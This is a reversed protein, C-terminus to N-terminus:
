FQRLLRRLYDREGPPRAPDASRRRLEDLIRQSKNLEARHPVRTTGDDAHGPAPRGLPDRGGPRAGGMAMREAAAARGQRLLDLAQNQAQAAQKWDDARLAQAAQGMAEAAQDLGPMAQGLSGALKSAAEALARAVQEQGQASAAGSAAAPAQSQRHSYDLLAQQRRIVAQLEAMGEVPPATDDGREISQLLDSLDKMLAALAEHAGNRAMDRAAELMAALDEADVVRAAGDMPGGGQPTRAAMARLWREMAAQFASLLQDIRGAPAGEAVAQEIARRTEELSREAAALDGDEIRLAANWLLDQLEAPDHNEDLLAHRAVRLALFAVVDDGFQAPDASIADLAVVVDLVRVTSLTLQRRQEIVARAGSHRFEREPLTMAVWEGGSTQGVADAALPRLTVPLGAWPHASLDHWSDMQVNKPQTGALPLPVLLPPSQHDLGARRIELWLRGLGYDDSASVAVRLRGREAAQPPETFSISPLADAVTDVQWGALEFGWQRIMLRGSHTLTTEARSEGDGMPEFDLRHGGAALSLGGWGGTASAMVRSGAPVTVRQGPGLSLPAIGTHAPPTLWVDLREPALTAPLVPPSVARALRAWVEGTGGALAVVLLLLAGARWGYPDRAAMDSRPPALRLATLAQAARHRHDAWLPCDGGVPRDTLVALPRHPLGSDHELRRAAQDLTPRPWHRILDLKIWAAAVAFAALVALHAWGPLRPLADFLVLAAFVAALSALAVLRPWVAELWLVLRAAALWRTPAALDTTANM